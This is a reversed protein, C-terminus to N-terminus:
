SIRSRTVTDRAVVLAGADRGDYSFRTPTIRHWTFTSQGRSFRWLIV